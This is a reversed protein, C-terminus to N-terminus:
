WAVEALQPAVQTLEVQDVPAAADVYCHVSVHWGGFLQPDRERGGVLPRDSSSGFVRQHRMDRLTTWGSEGATPLSFMATFKQVGDRENDPLAVELMLGSKLEQFEIRSPAPLGFEVAGAILELMAARALTQPCPDSLPEEALRDVRNSMQEGRLDKLDIKQTSFSDQFPAMMQVYRPCSQLHEENGPNDINRALCATSCDPLDDGATQNPVTNSM